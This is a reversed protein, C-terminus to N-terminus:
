DQAINASIYRLFIERETTIDLKEYLRLRHNKITGRSVGLKDAISTSPYGQLILRVIDVERPTLKEALEPPLEFHDPHRPSRGQPEVMEIWGGPALGFGAPLAARHLVLDGHFTVQGAGARPLSDVAQTLQQGERALLYQWAPNQCVEIHDRDLIRTPRAAPLGNGVEDSESWIGSRLSAVHAEQLGAILPYAEELRAIDARSFKGSTLDIFLALCGGGIPPLLIGIEDSIHAEALVANMYRERLKMETLIRSMPKIGPEGGEKWYRYYPDYRYFERNYLDVFEPTYDERVFFDPAAVRSYRIISLLDHPVLSAAARLLYTHFDPSLINAAAFGFAAFARRPLGGHGRKQAEPRDEPAIAIPTRADLGQRLRRTGAYRMTGKPMM